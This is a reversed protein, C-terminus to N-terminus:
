YSPVTKWYMITSAVFGLCGGPIYLVNCVYLPIVPNREDVTHFLNWYTGALCSILDFWLAQLFFLCSIDNNESYESM